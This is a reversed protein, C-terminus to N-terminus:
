KKIAIVVYEHWHKPTSSGKAKAFEITEDWETEKVHKIEFNSLVEELKERTMITKTTEPYNWTHNEGIFNICLVGGQKLTRTIMKILFSFRPEQFHFLFGQANVLSFYNEPFEYEGILCNIFNLNENNYDKAIKASLPSLDVAVVEFGEQLLYKTDRLNGAGMDLAFDKNQVFWNVANEVSKHPKSDGVANYYKEWHDKKNIDEMNSNMRGSFAQPTDTHRCLRSARMGGYKQVTYM